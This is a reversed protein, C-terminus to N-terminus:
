LWTVFVFVLIVQDAGVCVAVGGRSERFPAVEALLAARPDHIHTNHRAILLSAKHGHLSPTQLPDIPVHPGTRRM